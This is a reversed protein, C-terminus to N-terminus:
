VAIQKRAARSALEFLEAMSETRAMDQLQALRRSGIEVGLEAKLWDQELAIDYRRLTFLSASALAVDSLDGIESNIHWRTESRGMAQMLTLTQVASDSIMSQLCRAAFLGAIRSTWFGHEMRFRFSGTGVATIDLFDAGAPWAFGYAPVTAMMFLALSPDNYPSVGGDIFRGHLKGANVEIDFPDFYSPAATSALLVDVLPYRRNGRFADDAPDDWFKSRPNNSLFWVSGTDIRKAVLALGTRLDPTDLRREGVVSAFEHRLRRADFLARILKGRHWAPRFVNPALQFYFSKVEAVSKGLALATAIIAGTSTGGILDFHECLPAPRGKERALKEELRELFALAVVGRTGGGDLSLIRRPQSPRDAEM